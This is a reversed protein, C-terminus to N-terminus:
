ILVKTFIYQEWLVNQTLFLTEEGISYFVKKKKFWFDNWKIKKTTVKTESEVSEDDKLFKEM